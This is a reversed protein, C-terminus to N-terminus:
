VIEIIHILLVESFSISLIFLNDWVISFSPLFLAWFVKRGDVGGCQERRESWSSCARGDGGSFKVGRRVSLVDM